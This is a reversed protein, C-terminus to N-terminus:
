LHDKWKRFYQLLFYGFSSKEDFIPLDFPHRFGAPALVLREPRGVEKVKMRGSESATINNDYCVLMRRSEVEKHLRSM